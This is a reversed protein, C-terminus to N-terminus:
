AFQYTFSFYRLAKKSLDEYLTDQLKDDDDMVREVSTDVTITFCITSYGSEDMNEQVDIAMVKLASVTQRVLYKTLVLEGYLGRDKAFKEAAPTIVETRASSAFTDRTQQSQLSAEWLALRLPRQSPQGTGLGSPSDTQYAQTPNHSESYRMVLDISKTPLTFLWTGRSSPGLSVPTDMISYFREGREARERSMPATMKPDNLTGAEALLSM